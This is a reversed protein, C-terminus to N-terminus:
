KAEVEMVQQLVKQIYESPVIEFGGMGPKEKRLRDIHNLMMEMFAIFDFNYNYSERLNFIDPVKGEQVATFYVKMDGNNWPIHDYALGHVVMGFGQDKTRIYLVVDKSMHTRISEIFKDLGGEYGNEYRLYNRIRGVEKRTANPEGTVWIDVIQEDMLRVIDGVFRMEIPSKGNIMLGYDSSINFRGKRVDNNDFNLKIEVYRKAMDILTLVYGMCTTYVLQDGLYNTQFTIKFTGKRSLTEVRVADLHLGSSRLAVRVNVWMDKLRAGFWDSILPHDEAFTLYVHHYTKNTSM